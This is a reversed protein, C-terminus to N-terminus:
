IKLQLDLTWGVYEYMRSKQNKWKWGLQLKLPVQLRSFVIDPSSEQQLWVWSRQGGGPHLLLPDHTIEKLRTDSFFFFFCLLPAPSSFLKMLEIISFTNLTATPLPVLLAAVPSVYSKFINRQHPPPASCSAARRRGTAVKIKKRRAKRTWM